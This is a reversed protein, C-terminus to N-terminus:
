PAPESVPSGDPPTGRDYVMDAIKELFRVDTRSFADPRASDVDLVARIESRSDFVPLVLESKS